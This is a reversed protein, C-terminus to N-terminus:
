LDHIRGKSEAKSSWRYRTLCSSNRRIKCVKPSIALEQNLAKDKEIGGTM